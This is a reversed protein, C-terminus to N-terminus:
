KYRDFFEFIRPLVMPVMGGHDGNVELYDIVFNGGGMFKALARSGELSPTAGTGETM